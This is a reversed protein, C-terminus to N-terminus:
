CPNQECLCLAYHSEPRTATKPLQLYFSFNWIANLVSRQFYNEYRYTVKVFTYFNAFIVETIIRHVCNRLILFILRKLKSNNISIVLNFKQKRQLELSSPLGNHQLSESLTHKQVGGVAALSSFLFISFFLFLFFLVFLLNSFLLFYSTKSDRKLNIIISVIVVQYSFQYERTM